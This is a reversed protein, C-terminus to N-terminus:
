DADWPELRCGNKSEVRDVLVEALDFNYLNALRLAATMLDAAKDAITQRQADTIEESSHDLAEFVASIQGVTKAAHLTVHTGMLHPMLYRGNPGTYSTAAMFNPSYPVLWPQHKQAHSITLKSYDRM